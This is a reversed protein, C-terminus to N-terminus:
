PRAQARVVVEEESPTVRVDWADSGRRTTVTVLIREPGDIAAIKNLSAVATAPSLHNWAGTIGDVVVGVLGTLLIDLALIGGQLRNQVELTANSYGPKEFTLVYTYKRQLHLSTPTVSPESPPMTRVTAGDPTSTATVVQRTGHFIVGCGSLVLVLPVLALHRVRDIM